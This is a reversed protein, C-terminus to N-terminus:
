PAWFSLMIHFTLMQSIILIQNRHSMRRLAIWQSYQMFSSCWGGGVKCFDHSIHPCNLKLKGHLNLNGFSFNQLTPWNVDLGLDIALGFHHRQRQGILNNAEIVIRACPNHFYDFSKYLITRIPCDFSHFREVQFDSLKPWKSSAAVDLCGSGDVVFFAHRIDLILIGITEFIREQRCDILRGFM